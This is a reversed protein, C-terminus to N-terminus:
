KIKEKMMPADCFFVPLKNVALQADIAAQVAADSPLHGLHSAVNRLFQDRRELPVSRAAEQILNLQYDSLSLPPMVDGVDGM